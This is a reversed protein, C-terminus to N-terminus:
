AYRREKFSITRRWTEVTGVKKVSAWTGKYYPVVNRDVWETVVDGAVGQHQWAHVDHARQLRRLAVDRQGRLLEVDAAFRQPFFHAAEADVAVVHQLACLRPM